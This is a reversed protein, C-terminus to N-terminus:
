LSRRRLLCVSGLGFIAMTAPEPVVYVADIDVDFGSGVASEDFYLSATETLFNYEVLDGDEFDLEWATGDGLTADNETSLVINGNDLFHVADIDETLKFLDSGDFLLEAVGTGPNYEVLDGNGFSVGALTASLSTSLILNGTSTLSMADIDKNGILAVSFYLSANGNNPNFEVLDGDKYEVGGYTEDNEMSLIINGNLLVHVADIDPSQFGADSASFFSSADGTLTDYEILDGETYVVGGLTIDTSNSFLITGADATAAFAVIIMTLLVLKRM